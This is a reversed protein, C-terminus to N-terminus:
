RLSPLFGIICQFGNTLNLNLILQWDSLPKNSLAGTYGMGANNVLINVNGFDELVAQIKEQIKETSALEVAYGAAVVGTLTDTKAATELKDVSRSLLFVDFGCKAFSIL